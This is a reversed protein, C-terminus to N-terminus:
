NYTQKTLHLWTGLREQDTKSRRLLISAGTNTERIDSMLLSALLMVVSILAGLLNKVDEDGHLRLSIKAGFGDFKRVTKIVINDNM